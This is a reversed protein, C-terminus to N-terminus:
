HTGFYIAIILCIVLVAFLLLSWLLVTIKSIIKNRETQQEMERQLKEYRM